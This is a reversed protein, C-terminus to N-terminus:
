RAKLDSHRIKQLKLSPLLLSQPSSILTRTGRDRVGEWHSGLGAGGGRSEQARLFKLGWFTRKMITFLDDRAAHCCKQGKIKTHLSFM